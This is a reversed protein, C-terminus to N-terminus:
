NKKPHKALPGVSKSAREPMAKTFAENIKQSIEAMNGIHIFTGVAEVTLEPDEHVLCAWLFVRMSGASLNEWLDQSLANKGTHEEILALTNFDILLNRPKDLEIPILPAKPAM